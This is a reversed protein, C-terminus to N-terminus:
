SATTSRQAQGPIVYRLSLGDQARMEVRGGHLQVGHAASALLIGACPALAFDQQNNEFFRGPSGGPWRVANCAIDVILAPRVRTTQLSVVIPDRDELGDDTARVNALDLLADVTGVISQVVLTRDVTISFAVDDTRVVCAMGNLRAPRLCASRVAAAIDGVTVSRRAPETRRTSIEVARAFRSVRHLETEVARSVLDAAAVGRQGAGHAVLFELRTAILDIAAADSTSPPIDIAPQALQRVNTLSAPEAPNPPTSMLEEVYHRDHRMSFSPPLGERRPKVGPDDEGPFAEIDELSDPVVPLQVVPRVEASNPGFTENV